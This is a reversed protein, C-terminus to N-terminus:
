RLENKDQEKPGTFIRDQLEKLKKGFTERDILGCDFVIILNVIQETVM